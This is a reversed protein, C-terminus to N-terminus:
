ELLRAPSDEKFKIPSWCKIKPVSEIIYFITHQKYHLQEIDVIIPHPHPSPRNCSLCVKRNTVFWSVCKQDNIGICKCNTNECYNCSM